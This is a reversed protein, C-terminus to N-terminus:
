MSEDFSTFQDEDNELINECESALTSMNQKYIFYHATQMYNYQERAKNDVYNKTAKLILDKDYEPYEKVFKRMKKLCSQKDGRVPLGGSRIGKPFIERFDNIWELVTDTQKPAQTIKELAQDTFKLETEDHIFGRNSLQKMIGLSQLLKITDNEKNM